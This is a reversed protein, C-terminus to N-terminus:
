EKARENLQQEIEALEKRKQEALKALDEKSPDFAKAVTGNTFRLVVSMSGDANKYVRVGDVDIAQQIIVSSNHKVKAGDEIVKAIVLGIKEGENELIKKLKIQEM